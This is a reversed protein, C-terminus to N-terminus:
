HQHVKVDRLYAMLDLIDEKSFAGLLGTPMTSVPSPTMGSIESRPIKRAETTVLPNEVVRIFEDNQEIVLGYASTLDNLEINWPKFEDKIVRSPDLMEIIMATPDLREAVGALDPGIAAGEGGAKHCAVCAANKFIEQGHEKSRSALKDLDATFDEPKWEKMAAAGGEPNAAEWAERDAVVYMVGRMLQWHGPYTCIYDYDGLAEPVTFEINEAQGVSLTKSHAIIKASEPTWSKKVGDAGLMMAATAVEEASGPQLVMLNHDMADPNSFEIRVKM